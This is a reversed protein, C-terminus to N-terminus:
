FKYNCFFFPLLIGPLSSIFMPLFPLRKILM